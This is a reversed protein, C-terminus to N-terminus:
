EKQDHKNILLILKIEKLPFITALPVPDGYEEIIEKNNHNDIQLANETFKTLVGMGTTADTVVQIIDKESFYEQLELKTLM